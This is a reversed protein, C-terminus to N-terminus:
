RTNKKINNWNKVTNNEIFQMQSFWHRTIERDRSVAARCGYHLVKTAMAVTRWYHPYPFEAGCNELLAFIATRRWAYVGGGGPVDADVGDGVM